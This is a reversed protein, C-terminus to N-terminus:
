RQSAPGKLSIGLETKARTKVEQTARLRQLTEKVAVLCCSRIFLWSFHPFTLLYKSSIEGQTTTLHGWDATLNLKYISYVNRRWPRPFFMFPPFSSSLSWKKLSIVGGFIGAWLEWTKRSYSTPPSIKLKWNDGGTWIKTLFSNWTMKNFRGTVYIYKIRAGSAVFSKLDVQLLDLRPSASSSSCFFYWCCEGICHCFWSLFLFRM